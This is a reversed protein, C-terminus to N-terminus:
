TTASPGGFEVPGDEELVGLRRRQQWRELRRRFRTALHLCRNHDERARWWRNYAELREQRAVGLESELKEVQRDLEAHLGRYTDMIESHSRADAELRSVRTM